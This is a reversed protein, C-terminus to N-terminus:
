EKVEETQGYRIYWDGRDEIYEWDDTEYAKTEADKKTEAKVVTKFHDVGHAYVTWTKM